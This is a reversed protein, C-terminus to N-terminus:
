GMAVQPDEKRWLNQTNIVDDISTMGDRIWRESTKPGSGYVATFIQMRKFWDSSEIQEVEDSYGDEVIAQLTRGVCTLARKCWVHADVWLWRQSSARSMVRMPFFPTVESDTAVGNQLSKIQKLQNWHFGHQLCWRLFASDANVSPQLHARVTSGNKEEARDSGFDDDLTWESLAFAVRSQAPNYVHHWKMVARM